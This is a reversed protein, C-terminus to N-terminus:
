WAWNRSRYVFVLCMGGLIPHPLDERGQNEPHDLFSRNDTLEFFTRPTLNFYSATLEGLKDDTGHIFERMEPFLSFWKESLLRVEELTLNVDYNKQAYDMLGEDGMGGPKAFNIAKAKQREERTVEKEPKGTLLMYLFFALGFGILGFGIFVMNDM